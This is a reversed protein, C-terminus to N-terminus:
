YWATGSHWVLRARCHPCRRAFGNLRGTCHCCKPRKDVAFAAFVGLPGFFLGLLLGTYYAMRPAGVARGLLGCVIVMLLYLGSVGLAFGANTGADGGFWSAWTLAVAYVAMPSFVVFAVALVTFLVMVPVPHEGQYQIVLSSDNFLRGCDPCEVAQQSVMRGCDACPRLSLAKRGRQQKEAKGLVGASDAELAMGPDLGEELEPVELPGVNLNILGDIQSAEVWYGDLGERLPTKEDIEGQAAKQKLEELSLPGIAQDMVQFYWEPM